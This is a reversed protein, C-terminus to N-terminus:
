RNNCITGDMACLFFVTVVCLYTKIMLLTVDPMNQADLFCAFPLSTVKNDFETFYKTYIGDDRIADAGVGSDLLQM